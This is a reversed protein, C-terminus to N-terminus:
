KIVVKRGNVIYVSKKTPVGEMKRGDLTYYSNVAPLSSQIISIGTAGPTVTIGYIKVADAPAARHAPAASSGIIAYIYVYTDEAVDYSVIVDGQETRSAIMPTQNGVQVVLQANGTTKVNVKITGKGAAVKLILGTFNNAIDSSGPTADTIQSMNTTEGIVISGDSADYGGDGVNYYVDDVVNDSLDESGLNDTSVTTEGEIPTVVVPDGEVINIFNKWGFAAEYKAKSGVPVYLTAKQYIFADETRGRFVDDYLNKPDQIKTVVAELNDCGWFAYSGIKYYGNDYSVITSPIDVRKLNSCWDFASQGIEELGEPLSVRELGVCGSFSYFYIKKLSSPFIIDKLGTCGYFADNDIIEVGEPITTNKCGLQLMKSGKRIVANCGNPSELYENDEAVEISTINTCGAFAQTGFRMSMTKPIRLHEMSELNKLAYNDIGEVNYGAITEPISLTTATTPLYAEHYNAVMYSDPSRRQAITCYNNWNDRYINYISIDYNLMIGDETSGSVCWEVENDNIEVWNAFKQWKSLADPSQRDGKFFAIGSGPEDYSSCPVQITINAYQSESFDEMMDPLWRGTFTITKLNPCDSFAEGSISLNYKSKDHATAIVVGNMKCEKFAGIEVYRVDLGNIKSPIHVIGTFDKSFTNAVGTIACFGGDWEYTKYILEVQQVKLPHWSRNVGNIDESFVKVTQQGWAPFSLLVSM